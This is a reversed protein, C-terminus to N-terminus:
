PTTIEEPPGFPSHLEIEIIPDTTKCDNNACTLKESEVFKIESGSAQTKLQQSTQVLKVAVPIALIIIAVMLYSLINKKSFSRKATAEYLPAGAVLNSSGNDM